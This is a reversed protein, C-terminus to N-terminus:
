PQMCAEPLPLPCPEDHEEVGPCIPDGEYQEDVRGVDALCLLQADQSGIVDEPHRETDANQCLSNRCEYTLMVPGEANRTTFQPCDDDTECVLPRCDAPIFGGSSELNCSPCASFFRGWTLVIGPTADGNCEGLGHDGTPTDDGVGPFCLGRDGTPYPEGLSDFMVEACRRIEADVEDKTSPGCGLVLTVSLGIYWCM